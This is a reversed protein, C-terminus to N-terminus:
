EKKLLPCESESVPRYADEAKVTRVIELYDWPERSESPTKVRALYMDRMVRGDARLRANSVFADTIPLERMKAMVRGSEDTGAAQVATLYHLVAGYAGAHNMTPMLGVRDFFRKSWRRTEENMNWYSATTLYTGQANALGVAHVDTDYMLLAALRQGSQALGFEGAQKLANQLDAGANAFIAADAGSAQAQLLFSSFDATGTPHRVGGKVVGGAAKIFRTADRELQHGFAYDATVFFWTKVGEAALAQGTVKALAYTDYTFHVTNPSCFQNTIESGGPASLLAIRNKDRALNHIALAIASNTIDAIADVRGTDFWERAIQAGVDPKMQHDAVIIEVKKGLVTGGVEEAAMRAAEASGPGANDSGWSSMDTLVGIRVVDDSVQASAMSAVASFLIAALMQHKM